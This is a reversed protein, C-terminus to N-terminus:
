LPPKRGTTVGVILSVLFALLFLFFLFKAIGAAGVAIGGFGFV